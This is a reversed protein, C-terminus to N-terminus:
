PQSVSLLKQQDAVLINIFMLNPATQYVPLYQGGTQRFFFPTLSSAGERSTVDAFVILLNDSEALFRWKAEQMKASQEFFGELLKPNSIVKKVLFEISSPDYLNNLAEANKTLSIKNLRNIFDNLLTQVLDNSADLTQNNNIAGRVSYVIENNPLVTSAPDQQISKAKPSIKIEINRTQIPESRVSQLVTAILFLAAILRGWSNNSLM